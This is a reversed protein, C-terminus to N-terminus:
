PDDYALVQREESYEILHRQTQNPFFFFPDCYKENTVDPCTITNGHGNFFCLSFIIIDEAQLFVVLFVFCYVFSTHEVSTLNLFQIHFWGCDSSPPKKGWIFWLLNRGRSARDGNTKLVRHQWILGRSAAITCNQKFIIIMEWTWSKFVGQRKGKIPFAHRRPTTKRM